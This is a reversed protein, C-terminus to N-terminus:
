QPVPHPKSIALTIAAQGTTMHDGENQIGALYFSGAIGSLGVLIAALIVGIPKSDNLWAAFAYSLLLSWYAERTIFHLV